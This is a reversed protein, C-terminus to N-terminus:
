CFEYSFHLLFDSYLIFLSSCLITSIRLIIAFPFHIFVLEELLILKGKDILGIENILEM